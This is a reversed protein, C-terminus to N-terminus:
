GLTESLEQRINQYYKEGESTLSYRYVNHSIQVKLYGRKFLRRIILYISGLAIKVEKSIIRQSLPKDSLEYAKICDMVQFERLSKGREFFGNQTLANIREVLSSEMKFYFNVILFNYVKLFKVLFYVKM